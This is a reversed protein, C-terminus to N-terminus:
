HYGIFKTNELTKSSLDLSKPSSLNSGRQMLKSRNELITRELSGDEQLFTNQIM